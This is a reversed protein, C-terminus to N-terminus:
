QKLVKARYVTQIDEQVTLWYLGAKYPTLDLPWVITGPQVSVEQSYVIKGQSDALRVGASGLQNTTWRLTAKDEVPNPFFSYTGQVKAAAVAVPAYTAKGDYDLQKLRYYVIEKALWADLYQYTHGVTSTGAGAVFAVPTFTAGDISRQIEFGQNNLESATLWRLRVGKPEVRATFSTLSVPLPTGTPGYVQFEYLSYGFGTGRAIGLMRVYRGQATLDSFENVQRTNNRVSRITTWTTADDSTQLEYDKGYATEWVLEIQDITYRAGLDVAIWESDNYNSAWRTTLDGDFAFNAGNTGDTSSATGEKQTALPVLSQYSSGYVELEFLSYGYGTNRATGYMRLYRGSAALDALDNVLTTNGTVAKITTWTTADDSTQLEYDKGYATEWTLKVRTIATTSGLDVQIWQPDSFESSWRTDLKGDFANAPSSGENSGGSEQSSALAPRGLALNSTSQAHGQSGAFLVLLFGLYSTLLLRHKM